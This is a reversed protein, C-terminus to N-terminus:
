AFTKISKLYTDRTVPGTKRDALSLLFREVLEPRMDGLTRFGCGDVVARLRRMDESQGKASVGENRLHSEYDAVHSAIPKKRHEAFSDVVGARGLQVDRELKALMQRAAAKDTCLPVRRRGGDQVVYQGYWKSAREKVKRAGPTGKPVQRGDADLYRTVWPKLLRAM